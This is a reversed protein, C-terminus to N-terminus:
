LAPGPRPGSARRGTLVGKLRDICAPLDGVGSRTLRTQTPTTHGPLVANKRRLELPDMGLAQALKEMSREVPFTLQTHGFGRLSTTFIHNTYLCVADCWVNPVHYPGTCNQGMAKAIFPAKDMYAGADMLHTVEVAVLTGDKKAGLRVRSEVGTGVPATRLDEERSLTLKVPRGGVAQSALVAIPELQIVTKGGFAGGVLPTHVQVKGDEIHFLRSIQKTIDYPVQSASHILIRGDPPIEARVSRTELAAHDIQPMSYSGEVVVEAEAWAKAMDGKRIKTRHGVNSGPEPYIEKEPLSYGAMGEHLRPAGPKLADQVSNVVALPEYEVKVAQVGQIAEAEGRAVVVAVPEGFYRVRERALAPRDDLIPGCMVSTQDGTVVALVGPIKRATSSDIARIRAHAHLSTVLSAHLLDPAYHDANYRATGAVKELAEKRQVNTGIGGM